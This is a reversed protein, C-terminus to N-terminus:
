DENELIKRAAVIDAVRQVDVNLEDQYDSAVLICQTIGAAKAAQMDSVKDGIFVSQALDINYKSQAQVIMGPKPKRCDCDSAFDNVAKSPHHPCFFVEEITVNQNAFEDVMWASLSQFQEVSYYGRAIGSQNTIVFLQYGKETALQCLEFIGDIFEFDKSKHVYGHDVNIIGDRDLFLAKIM